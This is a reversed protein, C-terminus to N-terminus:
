EIAVLYHPARRHRHNVPKASSEEFQTLRVRLSLSRIEGVRPADPTVSNNSLYGINNPAGFGATDLANYFEARFRLKDQEGMKPIEWKKRVTMEIRKVGPM